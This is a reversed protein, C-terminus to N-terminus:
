APHSYARIMAPALAGPCTRCAFAQYGDKAISAPIIGLRPAPEKPVVFLGGERSSSFYYDIGSEALFDYYDLPVLRTVCGPLGPCLGPGSQGADPGFTVYPGTMLGSAKDFYVGTSTFAALAAPVPLRSSSGALPPDVPTRDPDDFLADQTPDLYLRYWPGAGIRESACVVTIRGSVAQLEGLRCDSTTEALSLRSRNDVPRAQERGVAFPYGAFIAYVKEGYQLRVPQCVGAADVTSREACRASLTLTALVGDGDLLSVAGGGVPVTLAAAGSAAVTSGLGGVPTRLQLSSAGESTWSVQVTCRDATEVVVCETLDAALTGTAPESGNCAALLWAAAMLTAAPLFTAPTM